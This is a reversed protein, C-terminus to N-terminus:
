HGYTLLSRRGGKEVILGNEEISVVTYDNIGSGEYVMQGNVVAMRREPDPSWGVAQLTVAADHLRPPAPKAAPTAAM